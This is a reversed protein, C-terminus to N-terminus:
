APGQESEGGYMAMFEAETMAKLDGAFAYGSPKRDIFIESTVAIGRPDDITGLGVFRTGNLPGPATVRYWLSSGCTSCFSREGWDSSPYTTINEAGNITIQDPAAEVAVNIGGTWKRCMGCHCAGADSPDSNIEYTVAGCLCSGSKPM